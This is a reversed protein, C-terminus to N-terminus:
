NIQSLSDVVKQNSIRKSALFSSVLAAISFLAFAFIIRQPTLILRIPVPASAVPPIFSVDLAGLINSILFLIPVAILCGIVGMIIGESCFIKIVSNKLMGIARMTGIERTRETVAMQM